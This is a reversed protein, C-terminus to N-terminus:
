GGQVEVEFNTVSLGQGGSWIEFGAFVDTLFLNGNMRGNRVAEDIFVNLDFAYNPIPAGQKVYSIVPANADAGTAAAGAGRLGSWIQWTQGEITANGVPNGIPTRGQPTYTWVMLFAGTATDYQANPPQAAFWVDYTANADVNNANHAFRTPISQIESIRIPLNDFPRTAIASKGDVFGSEGIYISPFTLPENSTGGQPARTITFSNNTYTLQQSNPVLQSGWGNNQVILKGGAGDTVMAREFGAILTGSVDGDLFGPPPPPAASADNGDAIGAVCFDYAIPLQDSGPSNFSIAEIPEGAYFAGRAAGRQECATSFESYPAFVQGKVEPIAYCWGPAAAGNPSAPPELVVRILSGTSRTFTFALGDAQPVVPQPGSGAPQNLTFVMRAVGRYQLPVDNAVTGQLCFPAGAARADYSTPNITTGPLVAEARVPGSWAGSTFVSAPSPPAAPPAAPAVPPPQAQDVPAGAVPAGAVPAGAVPAGGGAAPAAPAGLAPTGQIESGAGSVPTAAGPSGPTVPAGPAVPAAPVGPTAVPATGSLAGGFEPIDAGTDEDASSCASLAAMVLLGRVAHHLIATRM